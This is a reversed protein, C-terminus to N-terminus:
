LSQREPTHVVEVVIVPVPAMENLETILEIECEAKAKV